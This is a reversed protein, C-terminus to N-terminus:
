LVGSFSLAVLFGGALGLGFYLREQRDLAEREAFAVPAKGDEEPAALCHPGAALLVGGYWNMLFTGLGIHKVGLYRMFFVGV